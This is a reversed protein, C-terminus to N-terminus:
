KSHYLMLLRNHNLLKRMFSSDCFVGCAYLLEIDVKTEKIFVKLVVKLNGKIKKKIEFPVHNLSMASIM